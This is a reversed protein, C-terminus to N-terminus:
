DTNKSNKRPRGTSAVSDRMKEASEPLVMWAKGNAKFGELQGDSLMQRVRSPHCGIVNAAEQVNLFPNQMITSMPSLKALISLVSLWFVSWTRTEDFVDQQHCHVYDSHRPSRDVVLGGM